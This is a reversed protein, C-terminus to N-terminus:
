NAFKNKLDVVYSYINELDLEKQKSTHGDCTIFPDKRDKVSGTDLM